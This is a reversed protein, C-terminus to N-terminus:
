AYCQLFREALELTGSTYSEGLERATPTESHSAIWATLLIRRLMVFVPIQAVQVDTLPLETRYGEVWAAQLDPLYPKHEIFSAAAAFDYLFWSFGCDDFDIVYIGDDNVLLNTLRLDAHILGFNEPQSLPELLKRLVEVTRELLNTGERTLGPAARYDGWIKVSGLTMEFDWTKRKFSPPLRWARAHKHLRATIVGLNYFHTVLDAGESPSDGDVFEFAVVYLIVNEQKIEGVLKGDRLPIIGPTKVRTDKRIAEIWLLESEIEQLDHYGPRYVRFVLDQDLGTNRALFTANESINLLDIEAAPNVGWSPLLQYLGEKIQRIFEDTYM